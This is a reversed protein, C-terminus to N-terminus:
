PSRRIGFRRDQMLLGEGEASSSPLLGGSGRVWVAM